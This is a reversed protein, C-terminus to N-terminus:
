SYISSYRSDQMSSEPRLYFWTLLIKLLLILFYYRKGFNKNDLLININQQCMKFVFLPVDVLKIVIHIGTTNRQSTRPSATVDLFALPLRNNRNPLPLRLVKRLWGVNGTWQTVRYRLATTKGQAGGTLQTGTVQVTVGPGPDCPTTVYNPWTRVDVAVWDILGM